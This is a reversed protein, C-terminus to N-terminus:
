QSGGSRDEPVRNPRATGENPAQEPLGGSGEGDPRCLITYVVCPLNHHHSNLEFATLQVNVCIQLPQCLSHLQIDCIRTVGQGYWGSAILDIRGCFSLTGLNTTAKTEPDYYESMGIIYTQHSAVLYLILLSVARDFPNSLDQTFKRVLATSDFTCNADRIGINCSTASIRVRSGVMTPLLMLTKAGQEGIPNGDFVVHELAQLHLSVLGACILNIVDYLM